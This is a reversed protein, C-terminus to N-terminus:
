FKKTTAENPFMVKTAGNNEHIQPKYISFNSFNILIQLNYKDISKIYDHESVISVPNFM